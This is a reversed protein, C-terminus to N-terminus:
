EITREQGAMGRDAVVRDSSRSTPGTTVARGRGPDTGVLGAETDVQVAVPGLVRDAAVAVGGACGCLEHRTYEGSRAGGPLDKGSERLRVHTGRDSRVGGREAHPRTSATTIWPPARGLLPLDRSCVSGSRSPRSVRCAAARGFGVALAAPEPGAQVWEPVQLLERGPPDGWRWIGLIRGGHARGAARLYPLRRHHNGSPEGYRRLTPSEWGVTPLTELMDLYTAADQPRPTVAVPAHL